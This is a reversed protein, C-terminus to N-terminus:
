PFDALTEVLLQRLELPFGRILHHDRNKRSHLTIRIDSIVSLADCLRPANPLLLAPIAHHEKHERLIALHKDLNAIPQFARQGVSRREVYRLTVDLWQESRAIILIAECCPDIQDELRDTALVFSRSLSNRLLM